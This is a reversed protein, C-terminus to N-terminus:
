AGTHIHSAWWSPWDGVRDRLRRTAEHLAVAPPTPAAATLAGYVDEAIQVAVDDDIRWLTALVHRYGALHFASALHIAEDALRGSPMATECASLFALRADDLRLGVIDSATLPGDALLLHSASPEAPVAAGHCAIHAWRAAPLRALVTERTAQADTLLDVQGPLRARLGDAEAQAGPLDDAGPTHPMAVALLRGGDLSSEGGDDDRRRGTRAHALARITPTYSSIVRDLVTAPRADGRTHHHGAAHVPLFSLLGSLCWWVRPWPRGAAPPGHLTLHELVPSALEAWLWHLIATLTRQADARTDAEAASTDDLATLLAIVQDRVAPPTLGALAVATPAGSTLLLAYSGYDSVAVAVIPGGTAAARLDEVTPPRGTRTDLAQGLLVGRGLEFLEVARQVTEGVLVAEGQESPEGGRHATAARVCCSAADAGVGGVQALLHERDGLTLSRPAVQALCRAATTLAAVAEDFRGGDAAARGWGRAAIARVHPAAGRGALAERYAEIAADLDAARGDRAFRLRLAAGLNCLWGARGAHDPPGDDLAARSATVADDLDAPVGSQEFRTRLALGLNSLWGARSPDDAPTAEVAHRAATVAADIDERQGTREYRTLLAAGLNALYPPRDPHGPPLADVAARGVSIAENLDSAQRTRGYRGRLAAGLNSLWRARTPHGPPTAEVAHRAATVAADIDERRGTREYRTLLAAGLNALCITRDPHDTAITEVAARHVRVAADLDDLQGTRDFRLRLAAGLTSLIVARDPHDPPLLEMARAAAQGLRIAEHLDDLRGLRTFRLRLVFGLNSLRAAHLPDDPPTAALATLNAMIAANVDALEGTQDFRRRLAAGFGSLLDARDPHEPPMLTLSTQLQHLTADLARLGGTRLKEDLTDVARPEPRTREQEQEQTV